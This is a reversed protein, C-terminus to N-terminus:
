EAKQFLHAQKQLRALARLERQSTTDALKNSARYYHLETLAARLSSSSARFINVRKSTRSRKQKDLLDSGCNHGRDTITDATLHFIHSKGM